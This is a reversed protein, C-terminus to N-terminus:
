SVVRAVTGCDLCVMQGTNWQGYPDHIVEAVRKGCVSCAADVDQMRLQDLLTYIPGIRRLVTM